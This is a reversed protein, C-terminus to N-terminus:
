FAKNRIKAENQQTKLFQISKIISELEFIMDRKTSSPNYAFGEVIIYRKNKLDKIAYNIFPGNMFNNHLEWTGRIEFAQREDIQTETVYPYYSEETIMASKDLMGHIYKKGISDRLRISNEAIEGNKFASIPVQYILLSANGSPIDKKLWIFRDRVLAYSFSNPIQLSVHFKQRILRDNFLAKASIKQNEIIEYFKISSVLTAAHLDLTEIIEKLNHGTIYFVNQPAAYKDMVHKFEANSAKSVVLINRGLRVNSDFIKPSFQNITFLPEEEQLGDVPAALKKRLSDGVDGNWLVDDIIISITNIKGTSAPLVLDDQKVKKECSLLLSVLFLCFFFNAKRM